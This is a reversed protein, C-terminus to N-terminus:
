KYLNVRYENTYDEDLEDLYLRMLFKSADYKTELDNNIEYDLSVSALDQVFVGDKEVYLFFEKNFNPDTNRECVLSYGNGIPISMKNSNDEEKCGNIIKRIYDDVDDASACDMILEGDKYVSYDSYSADYDKCINSACYHRVTSFDEPDVGLMNLEGYELVSHTNEEIIIKNDALIQSLTKKM